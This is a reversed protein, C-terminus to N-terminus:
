ATEEVGFLKRRVANVKDAESLSKDNAIAKLEAVAKLAAKAADFEFKQKDFELERDARDESRAKLLLGLVAKVDKLSATPSQALEFAKERLADLTATDFPAPNKEAEEARQEVTSVIRRRKELLHPVCVSAWFFKFPNLSKLVVGFEKEVLVKAEHYPVGSLLWDALKAQQDDPLNLLTADSRPKRM